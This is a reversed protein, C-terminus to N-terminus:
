PDHQAVLRQGSPSCLCRCCHTIIPATQMNLFRATYVNRYRARSVAALKLCPTNRSLTTTLLLSPLLLPGRRTSSSNRGGAWLERSRQTFKSSRPATAGGRWITQDSAQQSRRSPMSFFLCSQDRRSCMMVNLTGGSNAGSRQGRPAAPKYLYWFLAM